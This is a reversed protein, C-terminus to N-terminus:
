NLEDLGSTVRCLTAQVSLGPKVGASAQWPLNQSSARCSGPSEVVPVVGVLLCWVCVFVPCYWVHYGLDGRQGKRSNVPRSPNCDSDCCGGFAIWILGWGGSAYLGKDGGYNFPM